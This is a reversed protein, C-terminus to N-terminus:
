HTEGGDAAAGDPEVLALFALSQARRPERSADVRLRGGTWLRYPRGKRDCDLVFACARSVAREFEDPPCPGPLHLDAVPAEEREREKVMWKGMRASAKWHIDRVPDGPEHERAGRISSGQRGNSGGTKEQGPAPAEGHPAGAAAPEPYVLLAARTEMDTSKEFLAFPFTTSVTCPGAPLIGRHRPRISLVRGARGGAPLDPFGLSLREGGVVLSLSLEAPPFRKGEATCAVTLLSERAAFAESAHLVEVAIGRLRWESLVGSLVILALNMSLAVYLLNNGTNVAAAGVGLTLLLFAKGEFTIRLRRRFRSRRAPLASRSM